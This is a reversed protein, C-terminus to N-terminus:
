QKQHPSQVASAPIKWVSDKWFSWLGVPSKEVTVNDMLSSVNNNRVLVLGEWSPKQILERFGAEDILVDNMPVFEPRSLQPSGGETGNSVRQSKTNRIKSYESIVYNSTMEDGDLTVLRVPRRLYFPLGTRFYYFGYVPLDKDPSALIREALRQSSSIAAYTRLVPWWRVLLAPATLVLVAFTAHALIHRNRRAALNRGLIGIAALILGTYLLSPKLLELVRPDIKEVARARISAVELIQWAALAVLLGTGILLAFGAALWDPRSFDERADIDMEEWAHAVLISLPVTAPLVYAPLKSRSITFFVFIFGAWALSFLVPKNMDYLLERWRRLRNWIILILFLSWPLLGGLFVPIYYFISGSRHASGTSFRKLSEQWLAYNPFDPNRLSVAIFWPLAAALFVVIGLGWRIRKLEGVRRGLAQYVLISLLPLLFGVPGKTITAIGCAAFMVIELWPRRFESSSTLWFATMALTILFTLTMDFIVTRSFIIALPMTAWVLAARFGASDGLMKRALLWTLLMTGLAMLASPFRAAWESIGALKFSGAVLWFYVAPKDLYTLTNYHPTIWDGAVLMERAVEANRGEDPELLPLRGLGAFFMCAAVIMLLLIHRLPFPSVDKLKSSQPLPAYETKL